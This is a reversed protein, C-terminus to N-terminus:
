IAPPERCADAAPRPLETPSAHGIRMMQEPASFELVVVVRPLNFLIFRMTGARPNPRVHANLNLTILREVARGHYADLREHELDDPM